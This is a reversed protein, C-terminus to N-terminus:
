GCGSDVKGCSSVPKNILWWVIISGSRRITLRHTVVGVSGDLLGTSIWAFSHKHTTTKKKTLSEAFRQNEQPIFIQDVGSAEQLKEKLQQSAVVFKESLHARQRWGEM